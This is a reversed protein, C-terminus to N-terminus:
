AAPDTPSPMPPLSVIDVFLGIRRIAEIFQQSDMPKTVYVSCGLEYCRAVERPDDTSTLMIVPVPQTAPDGKLERLVDLGNVPGPMNIDLLVLLRDSAGRDAYAGRGHVFDLAEEGGHVIAVSNRVAARRLNRRILERHGADDDVVLVTVSTSEAPAM